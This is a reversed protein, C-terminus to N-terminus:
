NASCCRRKFSASPSFSIAPKSCHFVSGLFYSLIGRVGCAFDNSPMIPPMLLFGVCYFDIFEVSWSM